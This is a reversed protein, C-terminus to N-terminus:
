LVHIGNDSWTHNLSVGVGSCNLVEVGAGRCDLFEVGAGKCNLEVVGASGFASM